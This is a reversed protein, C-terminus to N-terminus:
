GDSILPPIRFRAPSARAMGEIGLDQEDILRRRSEIRDARVKEVLQNQLQALAQSGGEDDHGVLERADEGDRGLGYKQVCGGPGGRGQAM